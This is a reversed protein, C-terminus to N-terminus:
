PSRHCAGEWTSVSYIRFTVTSEIFELVGEPGSISPLFGFWKAELAPMLIVLALLIIRPPPESISLLFLIGSSTGEKRRVVSEGTVAEEWPYAKGILCGFYIRTISITMIVMIIADM